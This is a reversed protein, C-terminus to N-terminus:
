SPARVLSSRELMSATDTPDSLAVTLSFIMMAYDNLDFTLSLPGLGADMTVTLGSGSGSWALTLTTGGNSLSLPPPTGSPTGAPALLWSLIQTGQGSACLYTPQILSTDDTSYLILVPEGTAYTCLYQFYKVSM